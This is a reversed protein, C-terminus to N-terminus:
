FQFNVKNTTLIKNVASSNGESSLADPLTNEHDGFDMEWNCGDYKRTGYKEILAYVDAENKMQKFVGEVDTNGTGCQDFASRLTASMSALQGDSLTPKVGKMGLKNLTSKVDKLDERNQQQNKYEQM